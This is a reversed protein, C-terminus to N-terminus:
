DQTDEDRQRKWERVLPLVEDMLAPLRKIAKMERLFDAMPIAPAGMLESGPKASYAIGSGAAIKTGDGISINDKLGAQGGIMVGRGVKTSGAIGVQAVVISDSGITVNHAIHVLNDIKTRAGIRTEHFGARDITANAGIEVDDEIVVVGVQPIKRLRGGAVEYKFGDDGIVAGAHIIVRDGIRSGHRIVSHELLHCDAGVTANREIVAHSEIVTNDGISSDRGVVAYPGIQVNVGIRAREDIVATKHIVGTSKQAPHFHELLTLVAMWVDPVPFARPEGTKMGAPILIISAKSSGAMKLFRPKLAFSADGERALELTNVGSILVKALAAPVEIQLRKGIEATSLSLEPMM